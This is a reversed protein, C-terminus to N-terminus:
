GRRTKAPSPTEDPGPSTRVSLTQQITLWVAPDMADVLVALVERLSVLGIFEGRWNHVVLHRIEHRLMEAAGEVVTTDEDVTILDTVWVAAVPDRPGLGTDLGRTLDRETVIAEDAGALVASVRGARMADAAVQLTSDATIRVPREALAGIPSQPGVGGGGQMRPRHRLDIAPGIRRGSVFDIAVAVLHFRDGGVWPRLGFREAGVIAAPERRERAAGVVMVSWGTRAFPDMQDIEFTVTAGAAAARLKTGEGTFFLIEDGAVAYNVPFVAPVEGVSIAVRGVRTEHLLWRCEKESLLELGELEM